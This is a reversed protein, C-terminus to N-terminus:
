TTKNVLIGTGCQGYNNYGFSWVTGDSKLYLSHYEGQAIKTESAKYLMLTAKGEIM